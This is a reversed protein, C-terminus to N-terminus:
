GFVIVWAFWTSLGAAAGLGPEVVGALFKLPQMQGQLAGHCAWPQYCVCQCPETRLHQQAFGGDSIFNLIHYFQIGWFGGAWGQRLVWHLTWWPQQTSLLTYVAKLEGHCAWPQGRVCVCFYTSLPQQARVGGSSFELIQYFQLGWLGDALGQLLVWYLSWWVQQASCISCKVKCHGMGYGPSTVCM